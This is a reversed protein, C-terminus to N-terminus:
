YDVGTEYEVGDDFNELNERQRKALKSALKKEAIKEFDRYSLIQSPTESTSEPNENTRTASRQSKGQSGLSSRRVYKGRQGVELHARSRTWTSKSVRQGTKRNFYFIM